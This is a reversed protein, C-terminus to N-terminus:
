KVAPNLLKSIVKLNREGFYQERAQQWKVADFDIKSLSELAAFGEEKTGSAWMAGTGTQKIFSALTSEAPGHGLIPRGAQLYSTLKTPLSTQGFIKLASSFPYMAYVFACQSLEQLAKDEPLTPYFIINGQLAGPIDSLHLHCGWMKLVARKNKSAAFKVLMSLFSLLDKKDYISGIHGVVLEGSIDSGRYVYQEIADASLYRHCVDAKVGAVKEYYAQMGTSIVDVSTANQLVWKTLQNAASPMFRYRISRACLAGAWDDHVTVHVPRANQRKILEAAVRLGENHTIIWYSDCDTKLLAEVIAEIEPVPQQQLMKRTTLIDKFIPGGMVGKGLYGKEYGAAAKGAVYYWEFDFGTLHATLSRLIVGGGGTQPSHATFLCIKKNM